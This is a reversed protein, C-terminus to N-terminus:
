GDGTMSDFFRVVQEEAWFRYSNRSLFAVHGGTRTSLLQVAPNEVFSPHRYTDFPIFPDDEAQILLTRVRVHELYNAASSREYYDDANEFGFTKATVLEDFAYVSDAGDLRLDPWFNPDLSQQKRVAARLQKLFRYEYVWNRREGIRRSCDALRIPASIAAVGAVHSPFDEGWEGALKLAMNGGMSFGAVFVRQPSLQEIVSRLDETLGSHYLTPSLHETGGCTRVNLRVVDFGYELAFQALTLMYRAESCATLGHVVVVTGRGGGRNIKALVRVGDVTDFLQQETPWREDDIRGSWYRAGITQADGGSFLPRYPTAWAPLDQDFNATFVPV